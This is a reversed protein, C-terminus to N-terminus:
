FPSSLNVVLCNYFIYEEFFLFKELSQVSKVAFTFGEYAFYLCFLTTSQQMRRSRRHKPRGTLLSIVVSPYSSPISLSHHLRSPQSSSVFSQCDRRSSHPSFLSPGASTFLLLRQDVMEIFHCRTHSVLVQTPQVSGHQVLRNLFILSFVLRQVQSSFENVSCTSESKYVINHIPPQNQSLWNPRKAFYSSTCILDAPFGYSQYYM